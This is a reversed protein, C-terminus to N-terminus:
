GVIHCCITWQIVVETCSFELSLVHPSCSSFMNHVCITKQKSMWFLKHLCCATGMNEWTRGLESSPIKMYHVPLESSLRKDYQPNTSALIFVESFSKGTHIIKLCQKSYIYYIFFNGESLNKIWQIMQCWFALWSYIDFLLYLLYICNIPCLTQIQLISNFFDFKWYIGKLPNQFVLKLSHYIDVTLTQQLDLDIHRTEQFTTIFQTRSNIQLM